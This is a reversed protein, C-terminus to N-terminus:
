LCLLPLMHSLLNKYLKLFSTIECIKLYSIRQTKLINKDNSIIKINQWLIYVYLLHIVNCKLQIKFNLIKFFWLLDYANNLLILGNWESIFKFFLYYYVEFVFYCLTRMLRPFELSFIVFIVVEGDKLVDQLM